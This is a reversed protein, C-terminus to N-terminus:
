NFSDLLSAILFSAYIISREPCLSAWNTITESHYLCVYVIAAHDSAKWPCRTLISNRPIHDAPALSYHCIISKHKPACLQTPREHHMCSKLKAQWQELIQDSSIWKRLRGYNIQLTHGLLKSDTLLLRLEFFCKCAGKMM